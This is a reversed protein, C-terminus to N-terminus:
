PSMTLKSNGPFSCKEYNKGATKKLNLRYFRVKENQDTTKSCFNPVLPRVTKRHELNTGAIKSGM